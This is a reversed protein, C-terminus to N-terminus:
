KEAIILTTSIFYKFPLYIPIRINFNKNLRWLYPFFTMPITEVKTFGSDLFVKEWNSPHLVYTHTDDAYINKYYPFPTTGIFKGKTKLLKHINNVTEIPNNLHELVEFSFIYDFSNKFNLSEIPINHFHYNPFKEKAFIVAEKDLDIGLVNTFGYTNLFQLFGGISSGFELVKKNKDFNVNKLIYNWQASFWSKHRKLDDDTFTYNYHSKFYDKYKNKRNM